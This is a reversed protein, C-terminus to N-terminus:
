SSTRCQGDRANLITVQASVEHHDAVIEVRDRATRYSQGERRGRRNPALEGSDGAACGAWTMVVDLEDVCLVTPNRLVGINIVRGIAANRPRGVEGLGTRM